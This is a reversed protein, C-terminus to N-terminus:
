HAGREARRRRRLVQFQRRAERLATFGLRITPVGRYIALTGVILFGAGLAKLKWHVHPSAFWWPTTLTHVLYRRATASGLMTGVLLGLVLLALVLATLLLDTKRDAKMVLM